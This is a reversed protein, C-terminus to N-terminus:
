LKFFTKFSKLGEGLLKAPFLWCLARGVSMPLCSHDGGGGQPVRSPSLVRPHPLHHPSLVRGAGNRVRLPMVENTVLFLLLHFDSIIDLFISSTNQSLYTAM